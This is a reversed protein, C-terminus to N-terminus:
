FEYLYKEFLPMHDADLCVALRLNKDNSPSPLIYVTGEYLICAPGMHIPKGWGFDSDHVPLRTWSNINLNPSAFYTPGRILKSLDTQLELYDIASRLYEDDMRALASHIRQATNMLPESLIEGSKAIPTATFVVNGLYGPPLPPFLRSRGDTAVHLKTLQDDDLVRTKCTCRWIHAALIEYTSGEHKSKTKLLTLQDSTIKFMAKTSSKSGSVQDHVNKSSSKLAPPSHYEVHKYAPTPPDRAHLLSRDIFPSVAVSVGRAVESWTNIFHLSSIGDSLTHFVGCGLSIGGCKFRTVQFIVLPFSSIDGSTDVSPILMKKIELSPIFDGFDDIFADIEAEIFLVGEGNCNIEIREKENDKALRGAMPYFSVLVNSLAEKMIRFDFFNPSTGNPKYFYVTLLHIRGVIVDLNSNWLRKSPTPKSPKVMISEKINIRM